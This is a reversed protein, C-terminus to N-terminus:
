AHGFKVRLKKEQSALKSESAIQPLISRKSQETTATDIKIKSKSLLLSKDISTNQRNLVDTSGFDNLPMRTVQEFDDECVVLWKVTKDIELLNIFSNAEDRKNIKLGDLTYVQSRLKM